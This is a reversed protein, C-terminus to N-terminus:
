STSVASGPSAARKSPSTPTTYNIARRRRAGQRARAQRRDVRHRHVTAGLMKAIQVAAIGVGSGAALVLVARAPQLRARGVLMHWATLFVLGMSGSGRVVPAFAQSRTARRRSWSSPTRARSACASSTTPSACCTTATWAPAATTAARAPALVVEDGVNLHTVGDGVQDITGAADNGLIHPM